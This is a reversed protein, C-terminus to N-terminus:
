FGELMNIVLSRAFKEAVKGIAETEVSEFDSGTPGQYEEM